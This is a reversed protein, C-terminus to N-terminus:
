DREWAEGSGIIQTMYDIASPSHLQEMSELTMAMAAKARERMNKEYHAIATHVDEFEASLLALSLELADLMAMNAGEGAYPPMLHAADGLMTLNPLADWAQDLPMCYQPRLTWSTAHAFLELWISDWSAFEQEVAFRAQAPDSFDVGSDRYGHESIKRGAYFALSGDGKSSVILSKSEGFAFIKGGKLLRHIRPTNIAADYVVAEIATLGTYFPKIGTLYPRIKSNAGDAAIVIDAAAFSGSQFAM